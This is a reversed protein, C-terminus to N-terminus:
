SVGIGSYTLGAKKVLEPSFINRGDILLDGKMCAKAKEFDLNRFEDWETLLVIADAGNMAEYMDTTKKTKAVPDYTRVTAGKQELKKIIEQSPADRLDDTKPKFSLGLLVIIKGDLEGFHNYLKEIVSDKQKENRAEAAKVIGLHRGVKEAQNILSKNDKGLCSGGYGIGAQLFRPGIRDDLGIGRAVNRINAGNGDCLDAIENIFSIKTSLFANAAYKTLEASAIDMCLLPKGTRVIPSFLQEMRKKTYDSEVGVVIRDPTMTDKVAAGQRLFEPNSAVHCPLYQKCKMNTGVPVTSKMVFVADKRATKGVEKAVKYVDTLDTQGDEKTPTGVACIIIDKDHANSNTSFSLRKDNVNRKVLEELGPEYLPMTGSKLNDIKETDNDSCVVENGMEAFCTGTTLGVYGCGIVLIKM